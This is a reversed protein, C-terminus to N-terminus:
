HLNAETRSQVSFLVFSDLLSAFIDTIDFTIYLVCVLDITGRPTPYDDHYDLLPVILIVGYFSSV